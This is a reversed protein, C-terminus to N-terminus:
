PRQKARICLSFTFRTGCMGQDLVHEGAEVELTEELLWRLVAVLLSSGPKSIVKSRSNSCNNPRVKLVHGVAPWLCLLNLPLEMHKGPYQPVITSTGTPVSSHCGTDRQKLRLPHDGAEGFGAQFPTKRHQRRGAADRAFLNKANNDAPDISEELFRRGKRIRPQRLRKDCM